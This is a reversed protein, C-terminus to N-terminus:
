PRSVEPTQPKPALTSVVKPNLYERSLLKSEQQRDSSLRLGLGGSGM